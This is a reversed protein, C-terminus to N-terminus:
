ISQLGTWVAPDYFSGENTLKAPNNVSLKVTVNDAGIAIGNKDAYLRREYIPATIGNEYHRLTVQIPYNISGMPTIMMLKQRVDSGIRGFSISGAQTTDTSQSTVTPIEMSTATFVEGTGDVDFTKDTYQNQVLRIYGFDPHYFEATLYQLVNAPRKSWYERQSDSYTPTTM